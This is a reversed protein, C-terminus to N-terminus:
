HIRVERLLVHCGVEAPATLPILLDGVSNIVGSMELELLDARESCASSNSSESYSWSTVINVQQNPKGLIRLSLSEEPLVEFFTSNQYNSSDNATSGMGLLFATLGAASDSCVLRCTHRIAFSDNRYLIEDSSSLTASEVITWGTFYTFGAM